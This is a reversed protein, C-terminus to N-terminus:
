IAAAHTQTAARSETTEAGTRGRLLDAAREAIMIVAANINGGIPQPIVSADVVRLADVGRVRLQADVVADDGTGMACTGMPHHATASTAAIHADLEADSQMPAGPALESAVFDRLAPQAVLDRITRIGARLTRRDAERALFDFRIRPPRAPDASALTVEGRSEPRLLLARVAFGDDYPRKFPAFYPSANTPMCRFLIQVDPLTQADSTKLFATWGSPLDTWAGSRAVYAQALSLAVRDARMARHFTGPRKRAYEVGSWLHDRLNRGVGGLEVRVAVGHERLQAPDGIGSLMLLQPSNIAGGAVIVEREARAERREGGQLYEVGVARTGGFLLKTALAHVVVSLNTRALAPHLYATAASSRRGRGITMQLVGIGHQQAGNYDDTVPHGVRQAAEFFAPTIPDDFRSRRTALPGSGGRYANPGDEWTEQRRFYTLVDAYSWGALGSEAWRDFDARHGRVYAMANISSCGGVVKGRTCEIERDDLRPERESQYMWDYRREPVIRGWGLPLHIWPDRDWGGAELLLVRAARDETLRAALACGASGAGVIVYDYSSRQTV